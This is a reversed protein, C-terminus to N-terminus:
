QIEFILEQKSEGLRREWVQVPVKYTGKSTPMKLKVAMLAAMDEHLDVINITATLRGPYTMTPGTPQQHIVAASVNPPTIPAPTVEFEIPFYVQASINEGMEKGLNRLLFTVIQEQNASFKEGTSGSEFSFRLASLTEPNLAARNIGILTSSLVAVGSILMVLSSGVFYTSYETSSLFQPSITGAFYLFGIAAFALSASFAVFPTFFATWVSLSDVKGRIRRIDKRYKEIEKELAAVGTEDSLGASLEKVKKELEEVSRERQSISRKRERGFFTVSIAYTPITVSILGIDLFAIWDFLLSADAMFPTEITQHNILEQTINQTM